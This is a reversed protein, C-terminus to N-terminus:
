FFIPQQFDAKNKPPLANFKEEGLFNTLHFCTLIIFIINCSKLDLVPKDMTVISSPM